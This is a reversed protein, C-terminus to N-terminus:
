RKGTPDLGLDAAHRAVLMALHDKVVQPDFGESVLQKAQAVVFSSLSADLQMARAHGLPSPLNATM